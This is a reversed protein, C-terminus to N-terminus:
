RLDDQIRALEALKADLDGQIRIQRRELVTIDGQLAGIRQSYRQVTTSLVRERGKKQEIQRRKQEIRSGLSAGSSLVPLAAWLVLPLLAAALLLGLRSVRM